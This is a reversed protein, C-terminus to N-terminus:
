LVSFTSLLGVRVVGAEYLCWYIVSLKLCEYMKKLFLQILISVPYCPWACKETDQTM